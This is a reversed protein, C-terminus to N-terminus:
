QEVRMMLTACWLIGLGVASVALGSLLESDTVSHEIGGVGFMTTILGTFFMFFIKTM